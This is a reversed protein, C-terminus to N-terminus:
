RVNSCTTDETRTSCRYDEFRSTRTRCMPHRCLFTKRRRENGCPSVKPVTTEFSASFLPRGGPPASVPAFGVLSTHEGKVALEPQHKKREQTDCANATQETNVGWWLPGRYFDLRWRFTVAALYAQLRIVSVGGFSRASLLRLPIFKWFRRRWNPHRRVM